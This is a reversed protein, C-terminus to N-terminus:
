IESSASGTFFRSNQDGGVFKDNTLKSAMIHVHILASVTYLAERLDRGNTQFASVVVVLIWRPMRRATGLSSFMCARRRCRRNSGGM